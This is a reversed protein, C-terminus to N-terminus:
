ILLIDCIFFVVLKSTPWGFLLALFYIDWTEEDGCKM